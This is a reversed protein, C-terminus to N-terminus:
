QLPKKAKTQDFSGPMLFSPGILWIASWPSPGKLDVRADNCNSDMNFVACSQFTM